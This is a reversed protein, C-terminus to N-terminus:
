KGIAHDSNTQNGLLIGRFSQQRLEANRVSTAVSFPLFRHAIPQNQSCNVETAHDIKASRNVSTFEASASRELICRYSLFLFGALCYLGHGRRENFTM